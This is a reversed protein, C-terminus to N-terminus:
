NESFNRLTGAQFMTQSSTSTFGKFFFQPGWLPDSILTKAM